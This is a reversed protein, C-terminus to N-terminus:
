KAQALVQTSFQKAANDLAQRPDTSPETLVAQVAPDIAAYMKQVEVPPETRVKITQMGKVFPVYNQVPTNAYKATLADIQKQCDGTFIPPTPFGISDGRAQKQKLNTEYNGLDFSRFLAWDVAAQLQEPSSKANFMYAYGGGLTANGGAQPLAALGFDNIDAKYKDKLNGPIGGIVMGVRGTALLEELKGQDLLQEETLSKDTWRMEKLLQLAKVGRDDNFSAAWKGNQQQEADGGFSFLVTTFHWGGQNGTSLFAFGPVGTKETIQKAYARLQDWTTPPKDPDLGAAKFLKRNYTLGLAYAETPFGYIHRSEDSVVKLAEPNLCAYWKSAKLQDTIDAVIKQQIFKQPETFWVGFANELTGGAVKAAFAEPNYGGAVSEITVGPHAQTFAAILQDYAARDAKEDEGPAGDVTIKVTRAAPAQPAAGGCAALIPLIVVLLVCLRLM